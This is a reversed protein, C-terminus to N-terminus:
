PTPYSKSPAGAAGPRYFKGAAGFDVSWGLVEKSDTNVTLKFNTFIVCPFNYYLTETIWCTQEPEADANVVEYIAAATNLKGEVSGTGDKRAGKRNTYGESDSDGWESVNQTDTVTWQTMNAIATTDLVVEGVTGMVVTASPNAM